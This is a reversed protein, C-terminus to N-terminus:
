VLVGFLIATKAVVLGALTLLYIKQLMLLVLFIVNLIQYKDKLDSNIVVSAFAAKFVQTLGRTEEACSSV